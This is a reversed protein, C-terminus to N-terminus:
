ITKKLYGNWKKIKNELDEKTGAFFDGCILCKGLYYNDRKTSLEYLKVVSGCNCKCIGLDKKNTIKSEIVLKM